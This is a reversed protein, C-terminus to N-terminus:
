RGHECFRGVCFSMSQHIAFQEPTPKISWLLFHRPPM